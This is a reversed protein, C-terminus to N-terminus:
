QRRHVTCSLPRAARRGPRRAARPGACGRRTRPRRRCTSAGRRASRRRRASRHRRDRVRGLEAEECFVACRSPRAIMRRCAHSEADCGSRRGRARSRTRGRDDEVRRARAEAHQAAMGVRLPPELGGVHRAEGVELALQEVRHSRAECRAAREDVRDARERAGFTRLLYGREGRAASEPDDALM